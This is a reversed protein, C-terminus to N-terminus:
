HWWGTPLDLRKPRRKILPTILHAPPKSKEHLLPLLPFGLGAWEVPSWSWSGLLTLLTQGVFTVELNDERPWKKGGAKRREGELAIYHSFFFFLCGFQWGWSLEACLRKRKPHSKQSGQWSGEPNTQGGWGGEPALNSQKWGKRWNSCVRCHQLPLAVQAWYLRKVGRAWYPTQISWLAQFISM